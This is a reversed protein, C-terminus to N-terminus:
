WMAIEGEDADSQEGKFIAPKGISWGLNEYGFSRIAAYSDGSDVQIAAAPDHYRSAAALWQDLRVRYGKDIGCCPPEGM